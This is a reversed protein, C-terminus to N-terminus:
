IEDEEYFDKFFEVVINGVYYAMEILSANLMFSMEDATDPVIFIDNETFDILNCITMELFCDFVEAEHLMFGSPGLTSYRVFIQYRGDTNAYIAHTTNVSNLFVVSQIKSKGM